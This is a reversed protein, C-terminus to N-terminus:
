LVLGCVVCVAILFFLTYCCYFCNPLISSCNSFFYCCCYYSFPCYEHLFFKKKKRTKSRMYKKPTPIKLAKNILLFFPSPLRTFPSSFFVIYIFVVCCLSFYVATIINYKHIGLTSQQTYVPFYLSLFLVNQLFRNETTHSSETTSYTHTYMTTTTHHCFHLKRLCDCKIEHIKTHAAYGVQTTGQQLSVVVM